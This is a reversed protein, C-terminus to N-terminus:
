IMPDPQCPINGLKTLHILRRKPVCFNEPKSPIYLLTESWCYFHAKKSLLELHGLFHKIKMLLAQSQNNLILSVKWM